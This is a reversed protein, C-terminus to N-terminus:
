NDRISPMLVEVPTPAGNEDSDFIILVRLKTGSKDLPLLAEPKRKPAFQTLEALPEVDEGKGDWWYIAYTGPESAAPGALILIGGKFSALDRVGRGPGLPLRFLKHPAAGGDFLSDLPASLVVARSKGEDELVPGRFGAYLTTNDKIAIGEITVGNKELRQDVFDKLTPETAIIKKLNTTPEVKADAGDKARFRVIQSGAKIRADIKDRDDVPDLKKESDRPHGHSGIVYYFGKSFAIGEGDLELKKKKFKNRILKITDGPVLRGDRLKVFQAKQLNDDIVLCSRPFGKSTTCAIGSVDESPEDDKGTVDPKVKWSADDKGPAPGVLLVPLVCAIAAIRGLNALLMTKVGHRARRM